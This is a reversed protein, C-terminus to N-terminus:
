SGAPFNRLQLRYYIWLGLFALFIGLFFWSITPGGAAIGLIFGLSASSAWIIKLNLMARYADAGANRGLFSEVGIGMLAAGVLRSLVPDVCSWGLAPLVLEPFLLLPVAFLVDLVFHVVFWYRLSDPVEDNKVILM